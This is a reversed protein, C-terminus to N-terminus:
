TFPSSQGNVIEEGKSYSEHFEVEKMARPRARRKNFLILFRCVAWLASKSLKKQTIGVLKLKRLCLGRLFYGGLKMAKLM